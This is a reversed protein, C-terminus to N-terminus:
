LLFGIGLGAVFDPGKTGAELSFSLLDIGFSLGGSWDLGWATQPFISGGQTVPGTVIGYDDYYSVNAYGYPGYGVAGDLTVAPGIHIHLTALAALAWWNASIHVGDYPYYYGSTDYVGPTGLYWGSFAFSGQAELGIDVPWRRVFLYELDGSLVFDNSSNNQYPVSFFSPSTLGFANSATGYEMTIGARLGAAYGSSAALLTTLVAFLAFALRKMVIEGKGKL